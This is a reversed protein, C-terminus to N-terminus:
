ACLLKNLEKIRIYAILDPFKDIHELLEIDRKNYLDVQAELLTVNNEKSYKHIDDFINFDTYLYGGVEPCDKFSIIQNNTCNFDGKVIPCWKFSALQNYSCDFYGNIHPCDKFSTIQNNFCYFSGNGIQCNKFSTIKNINCWFIGNVLPCGKFSTIKNNSCSFNDKITIHSMEPFEILGMYSLDLSKIETIDPLIDKIECWNFKNIHKNIRM